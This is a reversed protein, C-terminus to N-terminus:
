RKGASKGLEKKGLATKSFPLRLEHAGFLGQPRVIMLFVLLLAYLVLRYEGFDRTLELSVTVFIAGVVAGTTSGLGGLIIMVIIDISRDFKFDDPRVGGQLHAFLGGAIGACASSLTFALVKMRTTPIGVADAAIEDERIARLARGFSSRTVNRILVVVIVTWVLVWFLDSYLPLGMGRGADHPVPVTPEGSFLLGINKAEHAVLELPGIELAQGTYGLAGGLFEANNFLLRIIEGFGLTVIALYDGRLRLSPVGVAVGALGALAAGILLSVCLIAGQSFPDIDGNAGPFFANELHIATFATAYAGVAMFGAHGISFQGTTGNILNLSVALIVNVGCLLIIRNVYDILLYGLAHHLGYFVGVLVAMVAIRKLWLV